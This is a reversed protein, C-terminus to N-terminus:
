EERDFNQETAGVLQLVRAVVEGRPLGGTEVTLEALDEYAQRRREHLAVLTAVADGSALLPRRAVGRGMRRVAEDPSVRLYIIRAAGRLHAWAAENAVWGGGPAIVAPTTSTALRASVDSEAARFAEEGHEAFIRGVPKDFLREIEADVDIFPRALRKALARGVTTKGVGPLGVLILHRAASPSSPVGDGNGLRPTDSAAVSEQQM